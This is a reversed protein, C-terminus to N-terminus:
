KSNSLDQCFNIQLEDTKDDNLQKIIPLLKQSTVAVYNDLSGEGNFSDAILEKNVYVKGDSEFCFIAFYGKGIAKILTEKNVIASFIRRKSPLEFEPNSYRTTSEAFSVSFRGFDFKLQGRCYSINVYGDDNINKIYATFINILDDVQESTLYVDM